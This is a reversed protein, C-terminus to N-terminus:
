GGLPEGIVPWDDQSWSIPRVKLEALGNRKGDYMHHVLYERDGDRLVSGGGPGHVDGQGQLVVTGGGDLLAVGEGDVYPGTISRSRGVAVHYNSDTGRCCYDFSVFLYFYGGHAYLYPAEIPDNPVGPRRALSALRPPLDATMGTKPDLATIQIGGWFSGFVLYWHDADAMFVAPDIANWDDTGPSSCIVKGQDVWQDDASSPDLTVNTALGICSRNSGFSSVAYYLFYRGDAFVIDPAWLDGTFAPVETIMWRPMRWFVPPLSDWNVLDRSRKRLIGGGTSFLYYYDGSRIIVPDHAPTPAASLPSGGMLCALLVALRFPRLVLRVDWPVRNARILM